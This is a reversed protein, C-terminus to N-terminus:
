GALFDSLAERAAQEAYESGIHGWVSEEHEWRTECGCHDCAPIQREVIYGYVEGTAWRNYEEVDVRLAQEPNWTPDVAREESTVTADDYTVGIADALRDDPDDANGVVLDGGGQGYLPLVVTAGESERLFQETWAFGADALEALVYGPHNGEQPLSYDRHNAVIIGANSDFSRPSEPADDQELRVRYTGKDTTVAEGIEITDM